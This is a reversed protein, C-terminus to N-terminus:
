RHELIEARLHGVVRAARYMSAPDGQSFKIHTADVFDDDLTPDLAFWGDEGETLQVEVWAHYYFRDRLYVMGCCVRAPVGAARALAVFLTAYDRCVGDRSAMIEPASRPTGVNTQKRIHAKVWARIRRAITARDGAGAALERAQKRIGADTSGLLPADGLGPGAANAAAPPLGSAPLERSRVLYTVTLADGKKEQSVVRQRADSLVLERDSLGGVKLRLMATRRPDPLRVGADVSTAEGYDVAPQATEPGAGVELDERVVRIGSPHREELLRGEGDLWSEGVGPQGETRSRLVFTFVPKGKLRREETRVVETEVKQITLSITEFFHFTERAGVRLKKRMAAQDPDALLTVGKPIPVRSTSKQGGAEVECTVAQPTFRAHYTTTRGSSTLVTKMWVPRGDAATLHTMVLHQDITSGLAQMRTTMDAQTRTAPRGEHTAPASESVMSGIRQGLLFVTYRATEKAPAAAPKASASGPLLLPLLLAPLARRSLRM